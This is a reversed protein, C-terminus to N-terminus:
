DYGSREATDTENSCYRRDEHNRCYILMEIEGIVIVILLIIFLIKM